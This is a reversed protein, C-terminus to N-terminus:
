SNNKKPDKVFVVQFDRSVKYKPSQQSISHGRKREIKNKYMKIIQSDDLSKM